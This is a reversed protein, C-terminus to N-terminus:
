RDGKHGEKPGIREGHILVSFTRFILRIDSLYSANRVYEIDLAYREEWSMLTGGSVQSTGTLGPRMVHREAAWEPMDDLRQPIVPRPGVLSMHGLIVNLLQPTEDLKTRRLFYGISTVGDDKLATQVDPRSDSLVMTRFKYLRFISGGKGVRNQIFLIPYGSTTLVVLSILLYAPLFLIFIPIGLIVDTARKAAFYFKKSNLENNIPVLKQEVGTQDEVKGRM